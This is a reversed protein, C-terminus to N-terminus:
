TTHAPVGAFDFRVNLAFEDVSTKREREPEPGQLRRLSPRPTIEYGGNSGADHEPVSRQLSAGASTTLQYRCEARRIADQEGPKSHQNKCKQWTM